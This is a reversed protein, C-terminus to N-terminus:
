VSDSMNRHSSIRYYFSIVDGRRLMTKAVPDFALFISITICLRLIARSHGRRRARSPLRRRLHRLLRGCFGGPRLYSWGSRRGYRGQPRCPSRCRPRHRSWIQGRGGEGRRGGLELVQRTYGLAAQPSAGHALGGADPSCVPCGAICARLGLQHVPEGRQHCCWWLM